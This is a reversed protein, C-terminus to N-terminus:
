RSAALRTLATRDPKGSALLPLEEVVIIRDPRAPLGVATGAAIRALDLANPVTVAADAPLIMVPAQGWHEHEAAVIVARELGAVTRVAAEVRDISVNVGGSILVNDIRGDISLTGDETVIGADGTRYWRTGDDDTMFVAATREPDGLYGDALTPSAVQLEGDVTRLRVGDLPVGDYVCGGATETSGYTRVLRWGLEAAQERHAPPVAQGGVLIGRFSRGAGAVAPDGSAELLTHLQAPVLSTFRPVPEGGVASQMLGAATIFTDPTFKGSLIAPERGQVLSRVLVQLGAVYAPPLALLWAGEGLHAATAMASSVLAPRSLVVSKPVGTSGSTTVVAVTGAPVTETIPAGLALVDGSGNLAARLAALVDRPNDEATFFTM